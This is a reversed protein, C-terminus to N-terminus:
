ASFTTSIFKRALFNAAHRAWKPAIDLNEGFKSVLFRLKHYVWKPLTGPDVYYGAEYVIIKFMM